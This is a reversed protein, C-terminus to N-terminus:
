IDTWFLIYCKTLKQLMWPLLGLLKNKHWVYWPLILYPVDFIKKAKNNIKGKRRHLRIQFPHASKFAHKTIFSINSCLQNITAVSEVMLRKLIIFRYLITLHNSRFFPEFCNHTVMANQQSTLRTKGYCFIISTKNTSTVKQYFSPNKKQM